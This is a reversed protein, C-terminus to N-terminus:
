RCWAGGGRGVWTAGRRVTVLHHRSCNGTPGQYARMERWMCGMREREAEATVKGEHSHRAMETGESRWMAGRPLGNAMPPYNM